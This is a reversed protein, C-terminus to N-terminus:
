LLEMPTPLIKLHTTIEAIWYEINNLIIIEQHNQNIAAAASIAIISFLVIILKKM